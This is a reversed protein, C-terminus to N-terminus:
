SVPEAETAPFKRVEVSGLTGIYMFAATFSVREHVYLVPLEPSDPSPVYLACMDSRNVMRLARQAFTSRLEGRVMEFFVATEGIVPYEVADVVVRVKDPRESDDFAGTLWQCRFEICGRPRNTYMRCGRKKICHRCWQGSPKGLEAVPLVKCCATCGGCTRSDKTM